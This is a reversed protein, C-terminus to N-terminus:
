HTTPSASSLASAIRAAIEEAPADGCELVLDAVDRYLPERRAELEEVESVADQGLLAPRPTPDAVLRKRLVAVPVSLFVSFASRALWVRNDEREVIGGGTALVVRACPELWRRLAAAELDRFRAAGARELLAGVSPASWGAYRSLRLVEDDLDVFPRALTRALAKGVTSKGSCRLGLLALTRRAVGATM